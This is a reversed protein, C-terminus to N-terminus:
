FLYTNKPELIMCIEKLLGLTDEKIYNVFFDDYLDSNCLGLQEGIFEISNCALYMKLNDTNNRDILFFNYQSKTDLYLFIKKSIDNPIIDM